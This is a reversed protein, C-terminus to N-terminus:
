KRMKVASSLARAVKYHGAFFHKTPGLVLQLVYEAMKQMKASHTIRSSQVKRAGRNIKHCDSVKGTMDLLSPLTAHEQSLLYLLYGSFHRTGVRNAVLLDGFSHM